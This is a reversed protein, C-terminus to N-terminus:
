REIRPDDEDYEMGLEENAWDELLEDDESLTDVPLDTKLICRNCLDLYEQTITSKRTAEKDTLEVNCSLCRM